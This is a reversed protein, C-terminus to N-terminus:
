HLREPGEPGLESLRVSIAARDVADRAHLLYAGLDKRAAERNGLEAHALGRDRREEWTQPLLVVLRDLVAV